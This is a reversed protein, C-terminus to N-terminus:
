EERRRLLEMYSVASALLMTAGVFELSEELLYDVHRYRVDMMTIGTEEQVTLIRQDSEEYVQRLEEGGTSAMVEYMVDGIHTNIGTLDAPGSIFVATGYFVFGLALLIVTRRNEAIYRGYKAVAVVPTLALLAFYVTELINLTQWELVLLNRLILHRVNGADEVLMFVGAASFLFWFMAENDREQEYLKRGLHASLVSFFGLFIWQLNEVPGAETFLFDWLVPLTYGEFFTRLGFINRIDVLFVALYFLLLTGIGLGVVYRDLDYDTHKKVREIIKDPDQM